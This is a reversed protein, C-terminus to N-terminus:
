QCNRFPNTQQTCVMSIVCGTCVAYMGMYVIVESDQHVIATGINKLM